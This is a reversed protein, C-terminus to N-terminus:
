SVYVLGADEGEEWRVWTNPIYWLLYMYRACRAYYMYTLWMLKKSVIISVFWQKGYKISVRKMKKINYFKLNSFLFIFISPSAQGLGKSSQTPNSMKLGKWIFSRDVMPWWIRPSPDHPASSVKKLDLLYLSIRKWFWLKCSIM